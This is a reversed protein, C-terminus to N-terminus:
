LEKEGSKYEIYKYGPAQFGSYSPIPVVTALDQKDLPERPSPREDPPDFEGTGFEELLLSRRWSGPSVSSFLPRLSRGDSFSLPPVGALEAFTEALDLDATYESRSVGAAVGPGRIILPVHLDTEYPTYKGPLLRHEGMHYGNDATFVIYTNSLRGTASLTAILDGIAEDVAQLARLRNRYAEDINDIQTQTLLPRTKIYDPKDTTDAENFSPPRPAKINPFLTAHRPAPTYPSHPAYTAFYVFLPQSSPVRKIFDVAKAHIVDTLYDAATAGYTKLTGNENLTYNYESYPNGAYPSYWEDWGPPIYFAPATNQNGNLYKGLLVTRYGADHLLTAM